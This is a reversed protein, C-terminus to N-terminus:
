KVIVKRDGFIYIGPLLQPFNKRLTQPTEYEAVLRGQLDYVRCPWPVNKKTVTEQIPEDDQPAAEDDDFIAVNFKSPASGSYSSNLVYYIKNHYVYKNSRESADAAVLTGNGIDPYSGIHAKKTPADERAWNDNTFWGVQKTNDYEHSTHGSATGEFPLGFVMITKTAPNAGLEASTLTQELYQGKLKIESAASPIVTPTVNPIYMNVYRKTAYDTDDQNKLSATGPNGSRIVVPWNAPVFQPNGMENLRSVSSMTVKKPEATTGWETPDTTLTFAADTTNGLRTDFPVYLTGYYNTDKNSEATLDDGTLDRNKVGGKQVEVRLPMENYPWEEHIGVPQLCWKTDQIGNISGDTDHHDGIEVMENDTHCTIRYRHNRDICVYNTKLNEVVDTDWNGTNQKFTSLTVAGGGIDELRFQKSWGRPEEASYAEDSSPTSEVLETRGFKHADTLGETGGPRAWLQLGQTGINYVKYDNAATTGTFKFISSPDFDAPLIEINGKMAPHSIQDRDSTGGKRTDVESIKALLDAYTHITSHSMDTELFHLWRGGYNNTDDPDTKESNFRYGSIYRPGIIGQINSKDGALDKGDIDLPRQSFARIRYYGDTMNVLNDSTFTLPLETADLAGTRGSGPRPDTYKLTTGSKTKFTGAYVAEQIARLTSFDVSTGNTVANRLTTYYDQYNFDSVVLEPKLGGVYGAREFYPLLQEATIRLSWNADANEKLSRGSENTLKTINTETDHIMYYSTFDHDDTDIFASTPHMLFSNSYNADGTFMEYVANSPGDSTIAGDDDGKRKHIIRKDDFQTQATYNADYAQPNEALITTESYTNYNNKKPLAGKTTVAVNDWGNGNITAYRSRLIFGYPDGEPAWLYNNTYHERRDQRAGIGHSYTFNMLGDASNNTMMQYWATTNRGRWAFQFAEPIVEYVVDILVKRNFHCDQLKDLVKGNLDLAQAYGSPIKRKKGSVIEYDTGETGGADTWETWESKDFISAWKANYAKKIVGNEEFTRQVMNYYTTGTGPAKGPLYFNGEYYVVEVRYPSTSDVKYKVGDITVTTKGAAIWEDDALELAPSDYNTVSRQVDKQYLFYRCFQRKMYWPVQPHNGIGVRAVDYDAIPYSIFDRLSANKKLLDKINGEQSYIWSTPNNGTYNVYMDKNGKQIGQYMLYELLHERLKKRNAIEETTGTSADLNQLYTESPDLSHQHAIVLHYEVIDAYRILNALMFPKVGETDLTNGTPDNHNVGNGQTRLHKDSSTDFDFNISKIVEGNADIIGLYAKGDKDVMIAFSQAKNSINSSSVASGDMMLVSNANLLYQAYNKMNFSYPDGVLAWKQRDNESQTGEDAYISTQNTHSNLFATTPYAETPNTVVRTKRVMTYVEDVIQGQANYVYHDFVKEYYEVEVNTGSYKQDWAFYTNMWTYDETLANSPTTFFQETNEDMSYVYTLQVRTKPESADATAVLTRFDNTDFDSIETGKNDKDVYDLYCKYTCGYRRLSYPLAKTIDDYKIELNTKTIRVIGDTSVIKIDADFADNDAKDDDKAVATRIEILNRIVGLGAMTPAYSYGDNIYHPYTLDSKRDTYQSRNSLSYPTAEFEYKNGGTTYQKSVVRWYNGTQNGSAGNIEDDATTKLSATRLFFDIDPKSDDNANDYKTKWMQLSWHGVSSAAAIDESSTESPVTAALSMVWITSDNKATSGAKDLTAKTGVLWKNGSDEYRRRNIITFDYPDGIFAWHLGKLGDNWGNANGNWGNGTKNTSMARGYNSVRETENQVGNGDTNTKDYYMWNNNSSYHGILADLWTLESATPNSPDACTSFLHVDEKTLDDMSYSVNFKFVGNKYTTVPNGENDLKAFTAPHTPDTPSAVTCTGIQYANAPTLEYNMTGYKVYKRQLHRPVATLTEGLGFYESLEDTTKRNTSMTGAAGNSRMESTETEAPVAGFASVYVKVPQVLKIVTNDNNAAHYGIYNADSRLKNDEDYSLNIHYSQKDSEGETVYRKTLGDHALYYYVNRYGMLDNDEKFRLAFAGEESSAAPVCEWYFDNIYPKGVNRNPIPDLANGLEDTPTLESRNDINTYNPLRLHVCDVIFQFNTEVTNFRALQAQKTDADWVHSDLDTMESTNWAGATNFVQVKYPDGVFYWKLKEPESVMRNDATRYQLNNYADSTNDVWKSGNWVKKEPKWTGSNKDVKKSLDGTQIYSTAEDDFFAHHPDIVNGNKDKTPFDMFYVHDNSAAMDDVESKTPAEKLFIDSTVVYKVYISQAGTEVPASYVTGDLTYTWVPKGDEDYVKDGTGTYTWGDTNNGSWEGGTIKQINTAYPGAKITYTTGETDFPANSEYITYNCFARRVLLPLETTIKDGAMYKRESASFYLESIGTKMASLLETQKARKAEDTASPNATLWEDYATKYAAVEDDRRITINVDEYRQPTYPLVKINYNLGTYTKSRSALVVENANDVNSKSYQWLMQQGTAANPLLESATISFAEDSESGTSEALGWAYQAPADATLDPTAAVYETTTGAENTITTLNVTHKPHYTKTRSKLTAIDFADEDIASANYIFLDYPDGAFAFLWNKEEYPSHDGPQYAEACRSYSWDNLNDEDNKHLKYGNGSPLTSLRGNSERRLFHQDGSTFGNNTNLVMFYLFDKRQRTTGNMDFIETNMKQYLTHDDDESIDFFRKNVIENQNNLLAEVGAKTNAMLNFPMDTVEYDVYIRVTPTVESDDGNILVPFTTLPYTSQEYTAEGDAAKVQEGDLHYRCLYTYDCYKRLWETPLSVKTKALVNESTAILKYDDDVIHRKMWWEINLMDRSMIQMDITHGYTAKHNNVNDEEMFRGERLNPGKTATGDDERLRRAGPYYYRGNSDTYTALMRVNANGESDKTGADVIIYSYIMADKKASDDSRLRYSIINAETPDSGNGTSADSSFYGLPNNVSQVRINYPDPLDNDCLLKWIYNNQYELDELYSKQSSERIEDALGTDFWTSGNNLSATGTTHSPNLGVYFKSRIGNNPAEFYINYKAKGTLDFNYQSPLAEPDYDYTVYIVPANDTYNLREIPQASSLNYTKGDQNKGGTINRRTMAYDTLPNPTSSDSMVVGESGRYRFQDYNVQVSKIKKPIKVVDGMEADVTYRISQTGSLNIVVYTPSVPIGMFKMQVNANGSVLNQKSLTNTEKALYNYNAAPDDHNLDPDSCLLEYQGETKSNVIIYPYDGNHDDFIAGTTRNKLAIQYPDIYQKDGITVVKAVPAWLYEDSTSEDGLAYASGSLNTYKTGDVAILRVYKEGSLDLTEYSDPDYDYTVWMEAVAPLSTLESSEDITVVGTEDDVTAKTYFQTNTIFPSGIERPLSANEGTGGIQELVVNRYNIAVKNEKNVVHYVHQFVPTIITHQANTYGTFESGADDNAAQRITSLDHMAYTKKIQEGTQSFEEDEFRPVFRYHAPNMNDQVFMFTAGTIQMMNHSRDMRQVKVDPAAELKLSGEATIPEGNADYQMTMYTGLERSKIRINYPDFGDKGDKAYQETLAEKSDEGQSGSYVYGMEEDIDPNIALNWLLPDLPDTYNKNISGDSPTFTSKNATYVNDANTNNDIVDGNAKALKTNQEIFYELTMDQFNDKVTYTVYFDPHNADDAPYSKSGNTYSYGAGRFYDIGEKLTSTKIPEQNEDFEYKYYGTEKKVTADGQVSSTGIYWHYEKVMPSNYKTIANTLATIEDTYAQAQTKKDKTSNPFAWYKVEWGHNDILHIAPVLPSSIIKFQEGTNVTSFYAKEPYEGGEGDSWHYGKLFDDNQYVGGMQSMQANTLAEQVKTDKEGTKWSKMGTYTPYDKFNHELTRVTRANLDTITHTGGGDTYTIPSSTVLKMDHGSSLVMYETSWDSTNVDTSNTGTHVTGATISYIKDDKAKIDTGDILPKAYYPSRLITRVGMATAEGGTETGGSVPGYTTYFSNPMTENGDTGDLNRNTNNNHNIIRLRYPDGGTFYWSMRTRLASGTAFANDRTAQNYVYFHSNGNCEPYLIGNETWNKSDFLIKDASEEYYKTGHQFELNYPVKTGDPYGWETLETNIAYQGNDSYRVYINSETGLVTINGSQTHDAKGAENNTSMETLTAEADAQATALSTYYRWTGALPSRIEDPVQAKEDKKQAVTYQIVDNGQNDIIHYTYDTFGTVEEFTVNCADRDSYYPSRVNNVNNAIESKDNRAIQITGNTQNFFLYYFRDRTGVAPIKANTGVLTLGLKGSQSGPRLLFSYYTGDFRAQPNWATTANMSVDRSQGESYVHKNSITIAYPDNGSLKWMMYEQKSANTGLNEPDYNQSSYISNENKRNGDIRRMMYRKTGSNDYYIYYWANSNLKLHPYPAPDYSPDYYYGVYVRDNMTVQAYTKIAKSAAAARAEPTKASTYNYADTQTDFFLYSDPSTPDILPSMLEEPMELPTSLDTVPTVRTSRTPMNGIGNVILYHTLPRPRLQCDARAAYGSTSAADTYNCQRIWYDNNNGKDSIVLIQSNQGPVLESFLRYPNATTGNILAWRRVCDGTESDPIAWINSGDGGVGNQASLFYDPHYANHLVICYPDPTGDVSGLTWLHPPSIPDPENKVNRFMTYYTHQGDLPSGAAPTNTGADNHWMVYNRATETGTNLLYPTKGTLDVHVDESGFRIMNDPNYEYKVYVTMGTTFETSVFEQSPTYVNGSVSAGLYYTYNKALPSKYAYPLDPRIDGTYYTGPIANWVKRGTKDILQFNVSNSQPTQATFTVENFQPSAPSAADYNLLHIDYTAADDGGFIVFQKNANTAAAFANAGVLKYSGGDLVVYRDESCYSKLTLGYPDSSTLRFLNRVNKGGNLASTEETISTFDVDAQMYNSGVKINYITTSGALDLTATPVYGSVYITRSNDDPLRFSASADSKDAQVGYMFDTALPSKISAPVSPKKGALGNSKATAAIEGSHNIVVYTYDKWEGFTVQILPDTTSDLKDQSALRANGNNNILTYYQNVNTNNTAVMRYLGSSSGDLLMWTQTTGEFNTDFFNNNNMAGSTSFVRSTSKNTVTVKYPDSGAFHWAYTDNASVDDATHIKASTSGDDHLYADNLTAGYDTTGNLLTATSAPVTYRVYVHIDTQDTYTATEKFTADAVIKNDDNITSSTYYTYDTALSTRFEDPLSIAREYQREFLPRKQTLVETGDNAIIHWTVYRENFEELLWYATPNNLSEAKDARLKFPATPTGGNYDYHLFAENTQTAGNAKYDLRSNFWIGVYDNDFHQILFEHRKFTNEMDNWRVPVNQMQSNDNNPVTSNSTFKNNSPQLYKGSNSVSEMYYNGTEDNKHFKVKHENGIAQPQDIRAPNNGDYRLVGGYKNTLIYTKDLDLSFANTLFERKADKLASWATQISSLRQYLTATGGDIDGKISTYAANATKYADFLATRYSEDRVEYNKTGVVANDHIRKVEDIENKLIELPRWPIVTWQIFNAKDTLHGDDYVATGACNARNVILYSKNTGDCDNGNARVFHFFVNGTNGVPLIEKLYGQKNTGNTTTPREDGTLTKASMSWNSNAAEDSGIYTKYAGNATQTYVFIRAGEKKFYFVQTLDSMDAAVASVATESSRYLADKTALNLGNTATHRIWYPTHGTLDIDEAPVVWSDAQGWAMNIMSGVTITLLLTMM